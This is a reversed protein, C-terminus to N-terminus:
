ALSILSSAKEDDNGHARLARCNVTMLWIWLIVVCVVIQLFVAEISSNHALVAESRKVKKISDMPRIFQIIRAM